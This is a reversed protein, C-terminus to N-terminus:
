EFKLLIKIAYNKVILPRKSWLNIILWYDVNSHVKGAKIQQLPLDKYSSKDKHISKKANKASTSATTITEHTKRMKLNSSAENLAM